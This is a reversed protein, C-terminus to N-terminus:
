FHQELAIGLQLMVGPPEYFVGYGGVAYKPPALSCAAEAGLRLFSRESFAQRLALELFPAPWAGHATGPAEVGSSTASLVTLAAGACGQMSLTAAEALRLCAALGLQGAHLRVRAGASQLARTEPLYVRARAEFSLAPWAASVHAGAFPALAPLVGSAAGFAIGVGVRMGPSPASTVKPTSPKAVNDDNLALALLLAVAHSVNGCDVDSLVREGIRGDRRTTVRAHWIGDAGESVLVSAHLESVQPSPESELVMSQTRALLDARDPCQPPASWTVSLPLERAQAAGHATLLALAAVFARLTENKM